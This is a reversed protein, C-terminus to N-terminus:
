NPYFTEKDDPSILGKAIMHKRFSSRIKNQNETFHHDCVAKFYEDYTWGYRILFQRDISLEEMIHSTNGIPIFAGQDHALSQLRDLPQKILKRYLEENLDM